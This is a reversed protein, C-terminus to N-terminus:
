DMSNMHYPAPNPYAWSGLATCEPGNSTNASTNFFFRITGGSKQAALITAFWARCGEPTYVIGGNSTQPNTQNCIYWVGFGGVSVTVLGESNMGLYTVKGECTFAGFAPSMAFLALAAVFLGKRRVVARQRDPVRIGEEKHV